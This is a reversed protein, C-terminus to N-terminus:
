EVCSVMLQESTHVATATFLYYLSVPAYHQMFLVNKEIDRITVFFYETLFPMKKILEMFKLLSALTPTNISIAKSVIVGM